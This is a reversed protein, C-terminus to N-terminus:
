ANTTKNYTAKIVTDHANTMHTTLICYLVIYVTHKINYTHMHMKNETSRHLENEYQETDYSSNM